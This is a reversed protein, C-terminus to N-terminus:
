ISSVNTGSTGTLAANSYTGSITTSYPSSNVWIKNLDSLGLNNNNQKSANLTEWAELMEAKLLDNILTFAQEGNIIKKDILDIIIERSTM